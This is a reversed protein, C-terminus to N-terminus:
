PRRSDRAPSYKIGPISFDRPTRPVVSHKICALVDAASYQACLCLHYSLVAHGTIDILLLLWPRNLIRSRLRGKQDLFDVVILVDLQCGDLEVIQFPQVRLPRQKPGSSWIKLNTQADKSGRKAATKRPEEMALKKLYRHLSRLGCDLTNLPYDCTTLGLLRCEKKFARHIKKIQIREEAPESGHSKAFFLDEILTRLRPFRNLLLGFVGAFGIGGPRYTRKTDPFYSNPNVRIAVILARPGWINGDPHLTLFRDRLRYLQRSGIKFQAFLERVPRREILYLRMLQLRNTFIERNASDPICASDVLPWAELPPVKLNFRSKNMTSRFDRVRRWLVPTWIPILFARSRVVDEPVSYECELKPLSEQDLRDDAPSPISKIEDGIVRRVAVNVDIQRLVSAM